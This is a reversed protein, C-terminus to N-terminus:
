KITPWEFKHEVPDKSNLGVTTFKVGKTGDMWPTFEYMDFSYYMYGYKTASAESEPASHCLQLNLYGDETTPAAEDLVLTVEHGDIKTGKILVQVDLVSKTLHVLDYYNNTRSIDIDLSGYNNVEGETLTATEAQEFKIFGFLKIQNTKQGTEASVLQKFYILLRDGYAYDYNVVAADMDAVVFTGFNDTSFTLPSTGTVKAFDSIEFMDSDSSEVCATMTFATVLGLMLMAIKKM